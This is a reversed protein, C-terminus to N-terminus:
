VTHYSTHTQKCLLQLIIGCFETSAKIVCVRQVHATKHSNVIQYIVHVLDLDEKKMAVHIDIQQLIDLVSFFCGFSKM